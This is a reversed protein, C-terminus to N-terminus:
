DDVHLAMLSDMKMPAKAQAYLTKTHVFLHDFFYDACERLGQAYQASAAEESAHELQLALYACLLYGLYHLFPTAASSMQHANTSAGMAMDQVGQLAKLFSQRHEGKIKVGPNMAFSAMDAGLSRLTKGEDLLVKRHLLDLAQIQNTGEYIQNIRADRVLQEMGYDQIYGHGGFVQLCDNLVNFGVDTNFAKVIPTLLGLLKSSPVSPALASKEASGVLDILHASWYTLARCLLSMTRAEMLLKRVPAHVIIPDAFMGEQRLAPDASKMQRREQAYTLAKQYGMQMLGLSQGGVGIRAANMMVFMNQLGRGKAGLRVGRAGDFAMQCTANGHIGMKHELGICKVGNDGELSGDDKVWRTPVIFLSLGGEEQALVLHIINQSCDHSGSSIFIKNGVVKHVEHDAWKEDPVLMAKTKILSLDTGCHPETLCMTGSFSGNVLSPLFTQKQMQSGHAHICEYAGQSLGPYMGWAQNCSNIMEYLCQNLVFPLQQGGYKTHASLGGWGLEYFAAYAEKFGTPTHVIGQELRCGQKDGIHNLPELTKECFTHAEKLVSQVDDRSMQTPQVKLVNFLLFQMDSIPAKYSM